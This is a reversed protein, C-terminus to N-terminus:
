HTRKRKYNKYKKLFKQIAHATESPTEEQPIHGCDNLIELESNPLSSNLKFGNILPIVKDHRCWILLSPIDITPYLTTYADLNQPMIQEATKKAAYVSRLSYYPKAYNKVTEDTIKKQDKYSYSLSARAHVNPPVMALGLHSVLPARMVQIFFPIPQKYALGDLVILRRIKHDGKARTKFITAIAVGGGYSHGVITVDKLKLQKMLQDILEAQDFASYLEDYPKDSEGFGKMDVAIVRHSKVLEPFMYRWTFLNAGFGHLLVLPPGVGEDRIFLKVPGSRSNVNIHYTHGIPMSIKTISACNGLLLLLFVCFALRFLVYVKKM